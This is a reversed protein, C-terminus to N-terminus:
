DQWIQTNQGVIVTRGSPGFGGRLSLLQELYQEHSPQLKLSQGDNYLKRMIQMRAVDPHPVGIEELTFAKQFLANDNNVVYTSQIAISADNPMKTGAPATINLVVNGEWNAPITTTIGTKFSPSTTVEVPDLNIIPNPGTTGCSFSVKIGKNAPVNTCEVMFSMKGGQAGQKYDQLRSINIDNSANVQVNRWAMGGNTSVLTALDQITIINLITQPDFLGPTPVLGILCYHWGSGPNVVDWIFPDSIVGLKNAEATITPSKGKGASSTTIPVWDGPYSLLNSQSHFLLPEVTYTKSGYNWARMYVYNPTGPQGSGTLTKGQDKGYNSTGFTSNPDSAPTTGYPILDPSHSQSGKKPLTNDAGLTSRLFMGLYKSSDAM